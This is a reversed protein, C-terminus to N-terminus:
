LANSAGSATVPVTFTAGQCSNAADGIMHVSGVLTITASGSNAALNVPSALTGDAASTFSVGNLNFSVNDALCASHGSDVTIDGNGVIKTVQVPYPNTNGVVVKLDASGGPFLANTVASDAVDLAVASKAGVTGVGSGSANWAAFAATATLAVGATIAIAALKKSLRM